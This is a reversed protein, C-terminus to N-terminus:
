DGDIAAGVWYALCYSYFFNWSGPSSSGPSFSGEKAENVDEPEVEGLFVLCEVLGLCVSICATLSTGSSSMSLSISILLLGVSTLISSYGAAPLPCPM